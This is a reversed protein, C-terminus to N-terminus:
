DDVDSGARVPSGDSLSMDNKTSCEKTHTGELAFNPMDISIWQGRGEPLHEPRVKIM